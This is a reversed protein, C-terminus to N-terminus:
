EGYEIDLPLAGRFFPTHYKGFLDMLLSEDSGSAFLTVNPKGQILARLRRLFVIGPSLSRGLEDCDAKVVSVDELESFKQFEDIFLLVRKGDLEERDAILYIARILLSGGDSARQISNNLSEDDILYNSILNRAAELFSNVTWLDIHIVTISGKDKYKEMARCVVAFKDVSRKAILITPQGDRFRRQLSETRRDIM